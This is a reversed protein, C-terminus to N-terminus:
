INPKFWCRPRLGENFQGYSTCSYEAAEREASKGFQDSQNKGPIVNPNFDAVCLSASYTTDLRCQAKPHSDDTQNVQSELPTDFQPVEPDEALASLVRALSEGGANIRYCLDRDAKTAWVSDCNAVVSEPVQDKFSANLALDDKWLDRACSHAAYYDSQGENAAWTGGFGAFGKRFSFGALHHGMEHCLVMAFGDLTMEPHRALGGYMNVQWSGFFQMASANLTDDDWRANITLRAGHSAVIPEYFRKAKAIVADFQAKTINADRESFVQNPNKIDKPDIFTGFATQALFLIGLTAGFFSLTTRLM